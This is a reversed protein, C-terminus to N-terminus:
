PIYGSLREAVSGSRTVKATFHAWASEPYSPQLGGEFCQSVRYIVRAIQRGAREPIHDVRIGCRVMEALHNFPYFLKEDCPILIASGGQWNKQAAIM